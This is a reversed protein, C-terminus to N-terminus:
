SSRRSPDPVLGASMGALWAFALANAPVYLNFDALSHMAIAIFAGLLGCALAWNPSGHMFIVVRLTRGLVWVALAALLLVGPIGLEATMQLYDNHAYDVTNTPAATKFQYMGREFAGLGCGTWRYAAIVHLTDTWIQVRVDKSIDQTATLDAFRLLMERTSLSVLILLPIAVPVLWLWRRRGPLGFALAVLVGAAATLTSVVGMRSLSLFIGMLLCAAVALMASTRLAAPIRARSDRTSLAGMVALPFAMELFGAYHDYAAYTGSVSAAAGGAMRMFFFQVLGLVAELWALVLVPAAVLWMRGAWWRAMEGAALFAAMAPVVFLLGALTAAPAASLPMWARPDLGLAARAAQLAHYRYPSLLLVLAPPLPVLQLLMWGLLLTLIVTARNARPARLLALCAALSVGLASWAFQAPVVGAELIVAAALAAAM